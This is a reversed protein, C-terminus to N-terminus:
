IWIEFKASKRKGKLISCIMSESLGTFKSVERNTKFINVNKEKLSKCKIEKPIKM